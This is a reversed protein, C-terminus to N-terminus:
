CNYPRLELQCLAPRWFRINHTRIGGGRGFGGTSVFTKTVVEPIECLEPAEQNSWERRPSGTLYFCFGGDSQGSALHRVGEQPMNWQPGSWEVLGTQYERM